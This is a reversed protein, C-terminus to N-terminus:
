EELEALISFPSKVVVDDSYAYKNIEGLSRM